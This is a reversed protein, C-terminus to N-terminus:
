ASPLLWRELDRGFRKELERVVPLYVTRMQAVAQESPGAAYAKEESRVKCRALYSWGSRRQRGVVTKNIPSNGVAPLHKVDVGLFGCVSSLVESPRSAVDDHFIVLLQDKGFLSEVRDIHQTYFGPLIWDSFLDYNSEWEEFEFAIKGKKREHWYHSWARDIPNRLIMVVRADPNYRAIRAMAIESRAYTVTADGVIHGSAAGDFFAEYWSLGREFHMDYFHVMHESPLFVEPHGQLTRHLWTSACKQFGAIFFDTKM